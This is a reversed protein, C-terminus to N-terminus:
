KKIYYITIKISNFLMNKISDPVCDIFKFDIYLTTFEKHIQNKLSNWQLMLDEFNDKLVDYEGENGEQYDEQKYEDDYKEVYKEQHVGEYEVEYEEGEHSISENEMYEVFDPYKVRKITTGNKIENKIDKYTEPALKNRDRIPLKDCLLVKHMPNTDYLFIMQLPSLNEAILKKVLLFDMPANVVIWNKERENIKRVSDVVVDTLERGPRIWTEYKVDIINYGFLHNVAKAATGSLIEPGYFMARVPLAPRSSKLYQRPCKNFLRLEEPGAFFYLKGMFKICYREIGLRFVGYSFNVPCLEGFESISRIRENREGVTSEDNNNEDNSGDTYNQSGDYSKTDPETVIEPLATRQLPMTMLKAKITEFLKEMPKRGDVTIVFAADFHKVIEDVVQLACYNYNKRSLDAMVKNNRPLKQLMNRLRISSSSDHNDRTWEEDGTVIRHTESLCNNNQLDRNPCSMYILVDPANATFVANIQAIASM